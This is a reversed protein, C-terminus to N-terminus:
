SSRSREFSLPNDDTAVTREQAIERRVFLPLHRLGEFTEGDLYRPEVERQVLRTDIRARDLEDVQGGVGVVAFGWQEAFSTVWSAYPLVQPFVVSLTHIVRAYAWSFGIRISGAQLAMVGSPSLADRILEYFERTFLKYSPGGALPETLDVLVVDFTEGRHRELWARADDIILELRPDDFACAHQEPLHTKCAEVVEGDIDVMTVAEVSRHRLAERAMSGEGGGLVLVRRPREVACLAPIVFAEHYTWEDYAASQIVDDLVLIRGYPVTDIIAYSQYDSRGEVLVQRVEVCSMEGIGSALYASRREPPSWLQTM